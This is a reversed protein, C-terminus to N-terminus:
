LRTNGGKSSVKGIMKEWKKRRREPVSLLAQRGYLEM